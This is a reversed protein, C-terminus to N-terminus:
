SMARQLVQNFRMNKTDLPLIVTAYKQYFRSWDSATYAVFRSLLPGVSDLDLDITWFEGRVGFQGYGFIQDKGAWHQIGWFFVPKGRSLMEHGLTSSLTVIFGTKDLYQYTEVETTKFIYDIHGFGLHRLYACEEVATECDKARGFIQFDISNKKCFDELVRLVLINKGYIEEYSLFEGRENLYRSSQQDPNVYDHHKYQLLYVLTSGQAGSSLDIENSKISGCAHTQMVNLGSKIYWEREIETMTFVYDVEFKEEDLYLRERAKLETVGRLANQFLFVRKRPYHNKLCWYNKNNDSASFIFSPKVADIISLLYVAKISKISPDRKMIKKFIFKILPFIYITLSHMNLFFIEKPDLNMKKVFTTSHREDLVLIRYNGCGWKFNTINM